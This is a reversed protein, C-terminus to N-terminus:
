FRLDIHQQFPLLIEDIAFSGRAIPLINFVVKVTGVRLSRLCASSSTFSAQSQYSSCCFPNDSLNLFARLYVKPMISAFGSSYACFYLPSKCKAGKLFNGNM